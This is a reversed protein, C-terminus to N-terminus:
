LRLFIVSREDNDSATFIIAAGQKEYKKQLFYISMIILVAGSAAGTDGIINAPHEILVPNGLKDGLTTKVYGWEQMRKSEGNLDCFIVPPKTTDKLIKRILEVLVSGKPISTDLNKESAIRDILCLNRNEAQTNNAQELLLFAAAEGPTYGDINRESKIRYDEDLEELWGPFLCSEVGGIIAYKITGDNLKKGASEIMSFVGTNGAFCYEEYPFIDKEIMNHFHYIFEEQMESSKETVKPPLSIFLGTESFNNDNFDTSEMLDSFGKGAIYALWEAPSAYKGRMHNLYAIPAAVLETGDEFDPDDAMCYYIESMEQKRTLGANISACSQIANLGVPSIMGVGTVAIKTTDM